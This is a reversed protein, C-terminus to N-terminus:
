ASSAGTEDTISTSALAREDGHLSQRM